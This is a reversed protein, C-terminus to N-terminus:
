NSKIDKWILGLHNETTLGRWPNHQYDDELLFLKYFELAEILENIRNVDQDVASIPWELVRKHEEM